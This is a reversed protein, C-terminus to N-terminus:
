RNEHVEWLSIQFDFNERFGTSQIYQLIWFKVIDSQNYTHVYAHRHMKTHTHTYIRVHPHAHIYTGILTHTHPIETHEVHM